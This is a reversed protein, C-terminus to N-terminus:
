NKAWSKVTHRTFLQSIDQKLQEISQEKEFYTGKVGIDSMEEKSAYVLFIAEDEEVNKAVKIKM